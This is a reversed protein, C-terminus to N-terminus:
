PIEEYYKFGLWALFPFLFVVTISWSINEFFGRHFAYALICLPLSVCVFFYIGLSAPTLRKALLRMLPEKDWLSLKITEEQPM